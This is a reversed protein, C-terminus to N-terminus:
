SLASTVSSSSVGVPSKLSTRLVTACSLIVSIFVISSSCFAAIALAVDDEDEDEEDEEDEEDQEEEEEEEDEEEDDDGITDKIGDFFLFCWYCKKILHLQQQSSTSWSLLKTIEYTWLKM